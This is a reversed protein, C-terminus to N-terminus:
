IYKNVKEKLTRLSEVASIGIREAAYEQRDKYKCNSILMDVCVNILEVLKQQNEYSMNDKFTDGVPEINGVLTKSVEIITDANM